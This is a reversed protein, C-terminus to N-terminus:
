LDLGEDFIMVLHTDGVVLEHVQAEGPSSLLELDMAPVAASIRPATAPRQGWLVYAGCLGALLLSAAVPLLAGRRRLAPTASPLQEGLRLELRALGDGPPEALALLAFLRSPDAGALASRCRACGAIHALAPRRQPEPLADLRRPDVHPSPIM